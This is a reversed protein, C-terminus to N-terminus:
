GIDILTTKRQKNRRRKLDKIDTLTKLYKELAFVQM